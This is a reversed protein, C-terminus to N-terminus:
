SNKKQFGLEKLGNIVWTHELAEVPTMRIEPKWELCREIFNM